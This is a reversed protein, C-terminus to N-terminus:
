NIRKQQHLIQLCHVKILPHILSPNASATERLHEMFFTNKFIKKFKFSFVRALVQCLNKGTSKPFKLVYKKCFKEPLQQVDVLGLVFVKQIKQIKINRHKINLYKKILIESIIWSIMVKWIWFFDGFADSSFPTRCFKAFNVPFCRRVCTNEKLNPLIKLFMM